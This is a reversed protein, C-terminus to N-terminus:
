EGLINLEPPSIFQANPRSDRLRPAPSPLGLGVTEEGLAETAKFVESEVGVVGVPRGEGVRGRLMRGCGVLVLHCRGCARMWM